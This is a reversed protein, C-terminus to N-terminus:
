RTYGFHQNRIATVFMCVPFLWPQLMFKVRISLSLDIKGYKNMLLMGKSVEECM